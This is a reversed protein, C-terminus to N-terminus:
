LFTSTLKKELARAKRNMIDQYRKCNAIFTKNLEDQHMLM